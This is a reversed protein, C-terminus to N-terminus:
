TYRKLFVTVQLETRISDMNIKFMSGSITNSNLLINCDSGPNIQLITEINSESVLFSCAIEDYGDSSEISYGLFNGFILKDEWTFTVKIEAAAEEEFDIRGALSDSIILNDPNNLVRNIEDGSM